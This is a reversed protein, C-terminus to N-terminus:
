THHARGGWWARRKKKQRVTGVRSKVARAPVQRGDFHLCQERMNDHRIVDLKLIAFANRRLVVQARKAEGPIRIQQEPFTLCLPSAVHRYLVGETPLGKTKDTSLFACADSIIDIDHVLTVASYVYKSIKSLEWPLLKSTPLYSTLM